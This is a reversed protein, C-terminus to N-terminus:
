PILLPPRARRAPALPLRRAYREPNGNSFAYICVCFMLLWYLAFLTVCSADRVTRQLFLTKANRREDLPGLTAGTSVALRLDQSQMLTPHDPDPDANLQSPWPM